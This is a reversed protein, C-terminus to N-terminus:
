SVTNGSSTKKAIVDKWVEFANQKAIRECDIEGKKRLEMFFSGLAGSKEWVFQAGELAIALMFRTMTYPSKALCTLSVDIIKVLPLAQLPETVYPIKPGLRSIQQICFISGLPLLGYIVVKMRIKELVDVIQKYINSVDIVREGSHQIIRWYISRGAQYVGFFVSISWLVRVVINSLIGELIYPLYISSARKSLPVFTSEKVNEADRIIVKPNKNIARYFLCQLLKEKNTRVSFRQSQTAKLPVIKTLIEGAQDEIAQESTQPNCLTELWNEVNKKMNAPLSSYELVNRIFNQEKTISPIKM